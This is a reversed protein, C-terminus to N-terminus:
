RTIPSHVATSNHQEAVEQNSDGKTGLDIEHGLRIAERIRWVVGLIMVIQFLNFTSM